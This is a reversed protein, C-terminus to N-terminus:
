LCLPEGQCSQGAGQERDPDVSGQGRQADSDPPSDTHLSFLRLCCHLCLCFLTTLYLCLSLCCVYSFVCLPPATGLCSIFVAPFLKQALCPVSNLLQALGMKKSFTKKLISSMISANLSM